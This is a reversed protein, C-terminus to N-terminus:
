TCWEHLQGTALAACSTPWPQHGLKASKPHDIGLGEHTTLEWARM